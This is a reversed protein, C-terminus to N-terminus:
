LFKNVAAMSYEWALQGLREDSVMGSFDNEFIEGGSGGANGVGMYKADGNWSWYVGSKSTVEDVVVSALREGAEKQTVYSGIAKMLTPFFFYRFWERKERFLSTTAICGPYMSNFVVGTKSHLRRHLELVTMMNLAKADKYAKAGYFPAGDVMEQGPGARLGGLDGVDAVPKVLSGAVTNRNGTVSGVICVRGERAKKLVPLLLQVLLFHGLHNVQLSMEYGDDTFRPKPDTPLYVAANCVLRDLAGRPLARRLDAAFDKVSQFSALQLETAVYDARDLGAKAAAAHMKAPERVAAVVFIDSRKLLAQVCNLGLGSSAGTIVVVKRTGVNRLASKLENFSGPSRGEYFRRGSAKLRRYREGPSVETIPAARSERINMSALVPPAHRQRISLAPQHAYAVRGPHVTPSSIILSAVGVAFIPLM